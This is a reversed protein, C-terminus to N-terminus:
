QLAFCRNPIITRNLWLLMMSLRLYHGVSHFCGVVWVYFMPPHCNRTFRAPDGPVLFRHKASGFDWVNWSDNDWSTFQKCQLGTRPSSVSKPNDWLRPQASVSQCDRGYSVFYELQLICLTIQLPLSPASLWFSGVHNSKFNQSVSGDGELDRQHYEKPDQVQLQSLHIHKPQHNWDCLVRLIMFKRLVAHNSTTFESCILLFKWCKIQIKHFPEM